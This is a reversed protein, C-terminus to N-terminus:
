NEGATEVHEGTEAGNLNKLGLGNVFVAEINEGRCGGVVARSRERSLEDAEEVHETSSGTGAMGM